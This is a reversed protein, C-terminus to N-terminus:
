ISPGGLTTVFPLEAKGMTYAQDLFEISPMVSEGTAVAPNNSDALFAEIVDAVIGPYGTYRKAGLVERDQGETHVLAHNCDGDITVHGKKGVFQMKNPVALLWTITADGSIQGCSFRACVTAEPGAYGDHKM